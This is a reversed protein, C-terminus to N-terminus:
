RRTATPARWSRVQALFDAARSDGSHSALQLEREADDLFGNEALAIGAALHDGKVAKGWEGAEAVSAVRFLAERHPPRPEIVTERDRNAKV